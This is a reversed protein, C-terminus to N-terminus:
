YYNIESLFWPTKPNTERRSRWRIRLGSKWSWITKDTSASESISSPAVSCKAGLSFQSFCNEFVLSLVFGVKGTYKWVPFCLDWILRLYYTQFTIYQSFKFIFGFLIWWMSQISPRPKSMNASVIIYHYVILMPLPNFIQTLVGM